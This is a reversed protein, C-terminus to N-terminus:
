TTRGDSGTFKFPLATIIAQEVEQPSQANTSVTWDSAGEYVPTRKLLIAEVEELPDSGSLSPRPCGQQRARTMRERIVAAGAALWVVWGNRRLNTVNIPDMVVGGGTAIVSNDELATAEVVEREVGRFDKWGYRSVYSPIPIGTKAEILHDTDLFNRKLDGALLRGVRTKGSCRYGILVINMMGAQVQAFFLGHTIEKGV